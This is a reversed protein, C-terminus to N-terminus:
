LEWNRNEAEQTPHTKLWDFLHIIFLFYGPSTRAHAAPRPGTPPPRPRPLLTLRSGAEPSPPPTAPGSPRPLNNGSVLGPRHRGSTSCSDSHRQDSSHRRKDAPGLRDASIAPAPAGAAAIEVRVGGKSCSRSKAPSSRNSKGPTRPSRVSNPRAVAPAAKRRSSPLSHPPSGPPPPPPGSTDGSVEAKRKGGPPGCAVCVWDAFGPLGGLLEIPLRKPSSETLAQGTKEWRGM